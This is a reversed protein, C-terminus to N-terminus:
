AAQRLDQSASALRRIGDEIEAISAFSFALRLFVSGPPSAPAQSNGNAFFRTGSVVELRHALAARTLADGSVGDPLRVWLYYGGDPVSFSMEPLSKQLAAVMTDRHRQYEDRLRAMHPALKGAACFEYVIRQTLPCTGGDSKLQAIRAVNEESSVIWGIRLGPTLLKSFTGLQIVCGRDDLEKLSSVGDVGFRVQRYPSDEVIVIGLESALAVLEQRRRLSMTMGTPNHFDPVDYILKPVPKGNRRREDIVSRLFEVSMGDGDQPIEIFSVGHSRFIPIGTFYTPATVAVCDGENVLLKCVLDLGHKAGNVIIINSPAVRVGDAALYEGIWTRLQSLGLRPAYQLTEARYKGLALGAEASLDPMLAPHADGAGFSILEHPDLAALSPRTESGRRSLEFNITSRAQVNPPVNV